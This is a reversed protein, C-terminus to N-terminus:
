PKASKVEICFETKIIKNAQDIVFLAKGVEEMIDTNSEICNDVTLKLFGYLAQYVSGYFRKNTGDKFKGTLKRDKRIEVRTKGVLAFGDGDAEISYKDNLKM